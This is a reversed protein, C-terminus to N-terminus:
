LSALANDVLADYEDGLLANEIVDKIKFKFMSKDDPFVFNVDQLLGYRQVYLGVSENLFATSIREIGIFSIILDNPPISSIVSFLSIGDEQNIALHSSIVEKVTVEM